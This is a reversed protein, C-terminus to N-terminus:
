KKYELLRLLKKIIENQSKLGFINKYKDIINVIDEDQNEYLRIAITNLLKKAM